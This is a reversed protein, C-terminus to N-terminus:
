SASEIWPRPSPCKPRPDWVSTCEHVAVLIDNRQQANDAWVYDRLESLRMDGPLPAVFDQWTAAADDNITTRVIAEIGGIRQNLTDDPQWTALTACTQRAHGLAATMRGNLGDPLTAYFLDRFSINATAIVFERIRNCTAVGVGHKLGLVLRHAVLDEPHGDDDRSCIIRILALVLRGASTDAFGEEKPPEYPM